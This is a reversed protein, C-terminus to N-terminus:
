KIFHYGISELLTNIDIIDGLMLKEGTKNEKTKRITVNNLVMVLRRKELIMNYKDMREKDIKGKNDFCRYEILNMKLDTIKFLGLYKYRLADSEPPRTRLVETYLWDYPITNDGMLGNSEKSYELWPDWVASCMPVM